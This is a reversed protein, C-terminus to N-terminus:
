RSARGARLQDLGVAAVIIAGILIDQWPMSLGQFTCGSRIVAMVLVGALTGVVSGRGGSLSGGGIVVAAIVDLELGLGENPNGVKIDSFWFLGALGFFLGALTYVLFKTREVRVGCLRATAENSGVAVVHRGFVTRHLLLAVGVALVVALYVGKPFNPFWGAYVDPNGTATLSKVWAPIAERPAFVTSEEAVIKGVGLFVTMAGLTVIFPVVKMRAILLGNLAGCALGTGLLALLALSPPWGAKLSAVYVTGSLALATGASLDIGGAIIVLTMGLGAVAIDLSGAMMVRLNRVRTFGEGFAADDLAAFLGYVALLMLVPGWSGGLLSRLLKM